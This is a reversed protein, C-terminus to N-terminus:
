PHTLTLTLNVDWVMEEEPLSAKKIRRCRRWTRAPCM